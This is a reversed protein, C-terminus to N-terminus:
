FPRNKTEGLPFDLFVNELNRGFSIKFCLGVFPCLISEHRSVFKEKRQKLHRGQSRGPAM